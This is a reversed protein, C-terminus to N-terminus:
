KAFAPDIVGCHDGAEGGATADASESPDVPDIVLRHHVLNNTKSALRHGGLRRDAVMEGEVFVQDDIAKLAEPHRLVERIDPSM